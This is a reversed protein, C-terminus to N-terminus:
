GSHRRVSYKLMIFMIITTLFVSILGCILCQGPSRIMWAWAIWYFQSFFAFYNWPHHVMLGIPLLILFIWFYRSLSIGFFKKEGSAYIFLLVFPAQFSLLMAAYLTRLWGQSPVPKIFWISILILFFSYVLSAVIRILLASNDDGSTPGGSVIDKPKVRDSMIKGFIIGTLVPILAVLTISGLTYFKDPQVGSKIYASHSVSAFCVPLLFIFLFLVAVSILFRYNLFITKIDALILNKFKILM